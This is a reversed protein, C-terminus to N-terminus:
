PFSRNVVSFKPLQTLLNGAWILCDNEGGRVSSDPAMQDPHRFGAYPRTVTYPIDVTNEMARDLRNDGAHMFTKCNKMDLFFTGLNHCIIIEFKRLQGM